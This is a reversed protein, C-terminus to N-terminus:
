NFKVKRSCVVVGALCVLALVPFVPAAEATKPSTVADTGAAAASNDTYLAKQAEYWEPSYNKNEAPAPAAAAVTVKAYMVPSLSFFTGTIENDATATAAINEWVGKANLHLVIVTDGKKIGPATFAIKAGKKLDANNLNTLEVLGQVNKDVGTVQVGSKEALFGAYYKGWADGEQKALEDYFTDISKKQEANASAYVESYDNTYGVEVKTGDATTGSASGNTDNSPTAMVSVSMGLCLVMSLVATFIKKKMVRM